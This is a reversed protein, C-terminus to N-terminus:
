KKSNLSFTENYNYVKEQNKDIAKQMKRIM